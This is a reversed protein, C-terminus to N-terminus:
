GHIKRLCITTKIEVIKPELRLMEAVTDEALIASNRPLRRSIDETENKMSHPNVLLEGNDIEGTRSTALQETLKLIVDILEPHEHINHELALELQLIRQNSEYL